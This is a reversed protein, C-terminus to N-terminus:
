LCVFMATFVKFRLMYYDM